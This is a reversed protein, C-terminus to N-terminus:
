DAASELYALDSTEVVYTVRRNIEDYGTQHLLHANSIICHLTNGNVTKHLESNEKNQKNSTSDTNTM